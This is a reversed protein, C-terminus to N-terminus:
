FCLLWFPSTMKDKILLYACLLRDHRLSSVHFGACNDTDGDRVTATVTVDANEGPNTPQTFIRIGRDDVSTSSTLFESGDITYM